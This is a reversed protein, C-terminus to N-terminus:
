EKLWGKSRFLEDFAGAIPEFDNWEWQIPTGGSKTFSNSENIMRNMKENGSRLAIYQTYARTFIERPRRLSRLTDFPVHLIVPNKLRAESAVFTPNDRNGLFYDDPVAVERSGSKFALLDENAKSNAIADWLLFGKEALEESPHAIFYDEGPLSYAKLSDVLDQMGTVSITIKGELGYQEALSESFWLPAYPEKQGLLWHDIHHGVEHVVSTLADEGYDDHFKIMFGHPLGGKIHYSAGKGKARTEKLPLSRWVDIGHVADIADLGDRVVDWRKTKPIHQILEHASGRDYGAACESRPASGGREGERGCHPAPYSRVVSYRNRLTLQSMVKEALERPLPGEFHWPTADQGEFWVVAAEDNGLLDDYRPDVWFNHHWGAEEATENDATQLIHGDRLDVVALTVKKDGIAFRDVQMGGVKTEGKAGNGHVDQPTGTGKHPGPGYHRNVVFPGDALTVVRKSPGVSVADGRVLAAFQNENVEITM